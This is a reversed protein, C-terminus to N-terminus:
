KKLKKKLSDIRAKMEEIAMRQTEADWGLEKGYKQAVELCTNSAAIAEAYKGQKELANTKLTYFWTEKPNLTIAKNALILAKDFDKNLFLYYEAAMGYQNSDRSKDTLLSTDIFDNVKRATSTGVKFSVVIEEWGISILADNPVVDIDITLSEYYRSSKKIPTKFSVVNKKEDYGDTAYLSTDSNLIITWDNIDPITFLSYTGAWIQKENIRVSDSFKIKTCYGAGTRWLEKYPVLGGFIKRGRAAPRGYDVRIFTFGVRQKISGKASLDPFHFQCFSVTSISFLLSTIIINKVRNPEILVHV